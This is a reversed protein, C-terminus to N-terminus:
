PANGIFEHRQILWSGEVDVITYVSHGVYGEPPFQASYIRESRAAHFPGDGSVITDIADARFAGAVDTQIVAGTQSRTYTRGNRGFEYDVTTLEGFRAVDGDNWAVTYGDLVDAVESPLTAPERSATVVLSAGLMLIVLALLGIWRGLWRNRKELRPAELVQSTHGRNRLTSVIGTALLGLGLAVPVFVWPGADNTAPGAGGTGGVEQAGGFLRNNVLVLGLLLMAVGFGMAGAALPRPRFRPVPRTAGRVTSARILVDEDTIRETVEDFYARLETAADPM